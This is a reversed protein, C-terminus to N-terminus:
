TIFDLSVSPGFTLSHLIYRLYTCQVYMKPLTNVLLDGLLSSIFRGQQDVHRGAVLEIFDGNLIICYAFLGGLELTSVLVKFYNILLVIIQTYVTPM